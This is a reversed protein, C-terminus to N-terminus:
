LVECNTFLLFIEYEQLSRSRSHVIGMTSSPRKAECVVNQKFPELQEIDLSFFMFLEKINLLFTGSYDM